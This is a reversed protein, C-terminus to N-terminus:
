DGALTQRNRHWSDLHARLADAKIEANTLSTDVPFHHQFLTDFSSLVAETTATENELSREYEVELQCHRFAHDDYALSISLSFLAGDTEFFFNYCYKWYTGIFLAGYASQAIDDYGVQSPKYKRGYRSLVAINLKPTRLIVPRSKVKYWVDRRHSIRVRTIFLDTDDVFVSHQEHRHDAGTFGLVSLLNVADAVQTTQTVHIKTEFEITGAHIYNAPPSADGVQLSDLYSVCDAILGSPPTRFHM